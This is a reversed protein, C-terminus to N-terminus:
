NTLFPKIKSSNKLTTAVFSQVTSADAFGPPQSQAEFAKEVAPDALAAKMAATFEAIKAPDVKPPGFIAFSPTTPTFVVSMLSVAEKGQSGKAAHSKLEKALTPVESNLFSGSLTSPEPSIIMLPTLGATMAAGSADTFSSVNGVSIDGDGRECGALQDASATYYDWTHPIQWAGVVYSAILGNNTNKQSVVSVPKTSAIVQAMTKFPSNACAVVLDDQQVTAGVFSASPLSFQPTGTGAIQGVLASGLSLEGMTLGDPAATGVQDEPVIPNAASFSMNLTAGLEKELTPKLAIMANAPTSGPANGVIFTVTKGQYFKSATSSKTTASAAPTATGSSCAALAFVAAAGLATVTLIQRRRGLRQPPRTVRDTSYRKM